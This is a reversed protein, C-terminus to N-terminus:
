FSNTTKKILKIQQKYTILPKKKLKAIRKRTHPELVDFCESKRAYKGIIATMQRLEDLRAEAQKDAILCALAADIEKAVELTTPYKNPNNGRLTELLGYLNFPYKKGNFEKTILEDSGAPTALFGYCDCDPRHCAHEGKLHTCTLCKRLGSM